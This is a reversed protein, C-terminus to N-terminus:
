EALLANQEDFGGHPMSMAHIPVRDMATAVTLSTVPWHLEYQMPPACVLEQYECKM